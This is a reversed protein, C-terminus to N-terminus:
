QRRGAATPYNALLRADLHGLVADRRGLEAALERAASSTPGDAEIRAALRHFAERHQRERALAYQEASRRTVMFAWDSSLALLAQRALQDLDPRRQGLRGATWERAVVDLLRRQVWFAEDVMPRVADGCWVSFDKGAGWSGPGLEVDGEVASGAVASGDIAGRLTTVRVGAEPLLRLVRALFQPGEHWWHGFLETDYAAVVLGPRGDRQDAIDVLRQRASCVFDVADHEVASAARVPDYPAKRHPPVDADGVRHLAFGSAPDLAHFDRYHAGAPYGTRSSWIRDTVGLDRALAVVDGGRVTWAASTPRGAAVLTEEDVVFHSIGHAAYLHELGPSYGCEPAWIGPVGTVGDGAGADGAGGFSSGFRVRADDLGTRLSFSAIAPDLLALIPHTAPGGLLEIVGADALARLRPSMGHRAVGEVETLTASAARFEAAALERRGPDPDAALHEARLRWDAVWSALGRVAHPDDLQAALVPTVGLALVDRCGTEGLSELTRLLPLYCRAWAQYLWEEGVPWRGHHMLWPLHSHLVLCFSGM